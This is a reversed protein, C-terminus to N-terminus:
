ANQYIRDNHPQAEEKEASVEVEQNKNSYKKNFEQALEKFARSKQEENPSNRSHNHNSNGMQMLRITQVLLITICITYLTLIILLTSELLENSGTDTSGKLVLMTGNGMQKSKISTSKQFCVGCYYMGNDAQTLQQIRLAANGGSSAGALIFRGNSPISSCVGSCLNTTRNSNIRFWLVSPTDVCNSIFTCNITVNNTLHGEIFPEQNVTVTCDKAAFGAIYFNSAQLYLLFVQTVRMLEM